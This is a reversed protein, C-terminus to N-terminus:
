SYTSHVEYYSPVFAEGNYSGEDALSTQNDHDFEWAGSNEFVDGGLEVNDEYAEFVPEVSKESCSYTDAQRQNDESFQNVIDTLSPSIEKKKSMNLAMQDICEIFFGLSHHDLILAVQINSDGHSSFFCVAPMLSILQRLQTMSLVHFASELFKLHILFCEAAM